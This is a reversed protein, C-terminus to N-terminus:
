WFRIFLSINVDKLSFIKFNVMWKMMGILSATGPSPM